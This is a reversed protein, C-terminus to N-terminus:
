SARIKQYVSGLKILSLTMAFYSVFYLLDVVGGAVYTGANSQYLFIFDSFYQIALAVVFYIIPAKMFGGLVKRSLLLILLAISLYFAQGLPYGFDLLTKVPQSWDIMYESLFIWYSASLVILPILLAQIRNVFSGLTVKVGSAKALLTVGYIYFLVSGFFGVDGLSPYIVEGGRFFHYSYVTQGFCQAFLGFAFALNARGMLSRYEGWLKALFLGCGAGVLAIIQYLSGWVIANHNEIGPNFYFMARLVFLVVFLLATLLFLRNKRFHVDM